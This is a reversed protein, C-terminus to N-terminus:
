SSWRTTRNRALLLREAGCPTPTRTSTAALTGSAVDYVGRNLIVDVTRPKDDAM